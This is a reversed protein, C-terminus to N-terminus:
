TLLTTTRSEARIRKTTRGGSGLVFLEGQGPFGNFVTLLFMPFALSTEEDTCWFLDNISTQKTNTKERMAM